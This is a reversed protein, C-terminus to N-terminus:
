RKLLGFALFLVLLVTFRQSLDGRATSWDSWIRIIFPLWVPNRYLSRVVSAPITQISFANTVFTLIMVSRYRGAGSLCSKLFRAVKM